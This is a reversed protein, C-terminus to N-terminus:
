PATSVVITRRSSRNIDDTVVINLVGPSTQWIISEGPKVDGIHNGNVYWHLMGADADAYAMFALNAKGGASLSAHYSLNNHPQQIRPSLGYNSEKCQEEFKPPAPKPRGAREFMSALESPWFEWIQEETVGYKPMCARLGTEKNIHITRYINTSKFPSIGPIFWTKSHKKCLSIDIDGTDSCIDIKEINLENNPVEFFDHMNESSAIKKALNVFLPLAIQGGVLLPNPKNNFNGVWVVLVYPGIIGSAWADRFGNSTGTKYRLPIKSGNQSIAIHDLDNTEIMQLTIFASEKSLLSFQNIKSNQKLYTLPNFQGYNALMAYLSAMERMTIEAGGLVLALGYHEETNLFNINARKLFSFLNPNKIKQALYLAPINRSAKLAETASIPGRFSKDFNEPDYGSFSKPTDYMITMPHIIGQELALAYIFPKLTSGPSRRIKTGDIQGSITKDFFNASGVLARIEMTPWHVLLASCNSINYKKNRLAFLSLHEEIKKQLQLSITTEIQSYNKLDPNSLIEDCIHPANFPLNSTNYIRLPAFEEKKYWYRKIAETFKSNNQSPKRAVPNQPVLMLAESEEETLLKAEKHFYILSAATLGEVNGGYPALTFYAELIDSKPYHAELLLALFIQYLKGKITSTKLNFALRAVQMTITSGGMKRKGTIISIASRIIAFPNVGNHYWFWKDEYEIIANLAREPITEIQTKIRYKQDNTLSIRLIEGNRDYIITSFDKNELPNPCPIIHLILIFSSIICFTIFFYYVLPRKILIRGNTIVKNILTIFLHM